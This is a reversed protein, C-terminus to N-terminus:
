RAAQHRVSDIVWDAGSKRLALTTLTESRLNQGDRTRLSYHRRGTITARSGAVDVRPSDFSVSISSANAFDSELASQERSGIGPWLAKMAGIDRHELASTYKALVALVADRAVRTEPPVDIPEVAPPPAPVSAPPTVAPAPPPV